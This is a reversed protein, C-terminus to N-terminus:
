MDAYMSEVKPGSVGEVISQEVSNHELTNRDQPISSNMLKSDGKYFFLYYAYMALFTAVFVGVYVGFAIYLWDDAFAEDLGLYVNVIAMSVAGYGLARHLVEWLIRLTSRKEGNARIHPRIFANLPQLWMIIMVALGLKQHTNVFDETSLWFAVVFAATALLIALTNFLRHSHFWWMSKNPGLVQTYAPRLASASIALPVFLMWALAMMIGHSHLLATDFGGSTVQGVCTSLNITYSGQDKPSHQAIDGSGRAWIIYTEGGDELGPVFSVPVSFTIITGTAGANSSDASAISASGDAVVENSTTPQVGNQSQALLAYSVVSQDSMQGVVANAPVMEGVTEGFGIGLWGVSSESVAQVNLTGANSDLTWAFTVSLGNGASAMTIQSDYVSGSPATCDSSNIASGASPDAIPEETTPINVTSPAETGASSLTVAQEGRGDHYAITDGEGYAWILNNASATDAVLNTTGFQLPITFSLVTSAADADTAFNGDSVGNVDSQVVGAERKTTLNYQSVTSTGEVGTQGQRRRSVSGSEAPGAQGVVATSGVMGGPGFGIALWGVVQPLTATGTLHTDNITYDFLPGGNDLVIRNTGAPSDTQAPVATSTLTDSLSSEATSSATNSVATDDTATSLTLVVTNEDRADHYSISEAGGYAWIINNEVGAKIGVEGFTVPITFTLASSDDGPAFVGDTVSNTDTPLIGSNSKSTLAYEQVLGNASVQGIVANSGVM